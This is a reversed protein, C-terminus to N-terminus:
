SCTTSYDVKWVDDPLHFGVLDIREHMKTGTVGHISTFLM